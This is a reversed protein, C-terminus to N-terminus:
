KPLKAIAQKIIQIPLFTNDGPDATGIRIGAVEGSLNVLPAGLIADKAVMDTKIIVIAQTTTANPTKVEAAVLDSVRGISVSNREQGSIAIVTQGLKLNPTMFEAPNLTYTDKDDKVVGLFLLGVEDNVAVLSLPFVKGDSFTASYKSADNFNNKDTVILGTKSVILGIDFFTDPAGFTGIEKIRVVSKANKDIADIVLDEEKVVVTTEKIKEGTPTVKEITKEVVRNITQTVIPPAESLLSTTIIGTAISTVFSILLALLIIQTKNLDEM